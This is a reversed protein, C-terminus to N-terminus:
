HAACDAYETHCPKGLTKSNLFAGGLCQGCTQSTDSGLPLQCMGTGGDVTSCTGYLCIGLPVFYQQATTSANAQCALSCQANGQCGVICNLVAQCTAIKAMDGGPAALDASMAMDTAQTTDDGCGPAILLLVAAAALFTRM